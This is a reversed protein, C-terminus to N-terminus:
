PNTGSLTTITYTKGDAVIVLAGSYAAATKWSNAYFTAVGNSLTIYSKVDVGKWTATTITTGSAGTLGIKVGTASDAFKTPMSFSYSSVASGSTLTVDATVAPTEAEAELQNLSGSIKDYGSYTAARLPTLTYSGSVKIDNDKWDAYTNLESYFQFAAVGADDDALATIDGPTTTSEVAKDLAFSIVAAGTSGNSNPTLAVLTNATAAVTTYEAQTDSYAISSSTIADDTATLAAATIATGTVSKAGLMGFYLQKTTTGTDDKKLGATTAVIVAGGSTEASIKVAVKVPAFSQNVFFFDQTAIQNDGATDLGLPDLAFDLSTPLLVNLVVNDVTSDGSITGSSATGAYVAIPCSALLVLTLIFATVNKINRKM